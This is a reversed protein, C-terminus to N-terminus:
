ATDMCVGERVRMKRAKIRRPSVAKPPGAMIGYMRVMATSRFCHSSSVENERPMDRVWSSGPAVAM